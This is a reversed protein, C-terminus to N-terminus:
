CSYMDLGNLQKFSQRKDVWSCSTVDCPMANTIHLKVPWGKM